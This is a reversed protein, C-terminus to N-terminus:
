RDEGLAREFEARADWFDLLAQEHGSHAQELGSQAQLVDRLLVGDVAYKNKAVRLNEIATEQTLGAVRLQARSQQLLRYNQNVEIVVLSEADAAANEAQEVTHRKEAVENKKRGWDFPEWTLSLGVSHVQTPLFTSFNLLRIANYQASIDPISEARKARLDWEAQQRRLVAQRIEPRRELALKRAAVLDVELEGAATVAEVDFDTLVDRGLMQNLQEKTSARRNELTLEEQETKALRTQIELLDAKLAVQQEVYNSTLREIERYLKLTERASRLSAETQQLTYYLRKVDRVVQQRQQRAQEQALQVGTRLGGLSLRIRHLTSLPQVVRGVVFGTPRLPTSVATDESPVPGIGEFTGMVGKEFIFNIPNLQQAGLVFLNFSPFQNTRAASLRDQAKSADLFSNKLGRNQEVALRVAQELPLREAAFAVIGLCLPLCFGLWRPRM